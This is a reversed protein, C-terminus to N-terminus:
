AIDYLGARVLKVYGGSSFVGHVGCASVSKAGQEMLMSAALAISGGTSIIDDVIICDRNEADLNKPAMKVETGSLRTKNLNDYDLNCTEAVDKAFELAGEDPSLILPSDFNLSKIYGGIESAVSLNEAECKFHNLVSKDHVNITFVKSAGESLVKAMARASIPEGENFKKDQRAYGMYPLVLSVDRNECADLLLITQIVSEADITSSILVIEDDSDMIRVYQEGDPFKNYKVESIGCNLAAATRHALVQSKETYVVKM